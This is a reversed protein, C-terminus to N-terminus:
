RLFKEKPISDSIRKISSAALQSPGLALRLRLRAGRAKHEGPAPGAAHACVLSQDLKASLRQHQMRESDQAACPQNRGDGAAPQGQVRKRRHNFVGFGTQPWQGADARCQCEGRRAPRDKHGHIHRHQRRRQNSKQQIMRPHTAPCYSKGRDGPKSLGKWRHQVSGNQGAELGFEIGPTAPAKRRKLSGRRAQALRGAHNCSLQQDLGSLNGMWGAQRRRAPKEVDVGSPIQAPGM